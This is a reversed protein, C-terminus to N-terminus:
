TSINDLNNGDSDYHDSIVDNSLIREDFKRKIAMDWALKRVEKPLSEMFMFICNMSFHGLVTDLIFENNKMNSSYDGDQEFKFDKWEKDMKGDRTIINNVSWAFTKVFESAFVRKVTDEISKEM